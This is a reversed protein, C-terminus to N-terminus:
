RKLLCLIIGTIALSSDFWIGVRANRQDYDFGWQPPIDVKGGAIGRLAHDCDPHLWAHITGGGSFKAALTPGDFHNEWVKDEMVYRGDKTIFVIQRTTSSRYHTIKEFKCDTYTLQIEPYHSLDKAVHFWHGSWALFVSLAIMIIGLPRLSGRRRVASSTM